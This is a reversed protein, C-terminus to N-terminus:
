LPVNFRQGHRQQIFLKVDELWNVVKRRLSTPFYQLKHHDIDEENTVCVMTLQRIDLVLDKNDHYKPLQIQLANTPPGAM